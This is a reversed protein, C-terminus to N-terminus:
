KINAISLIKATLIDFNAPARKKVFDLLDTELNGSTLTIENAITYTATKNFNNHVGQIEAVVFCTTKSREEHLTKIDEQLNKISWEYRSVIEKHKSKLIFM